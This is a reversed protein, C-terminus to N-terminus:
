RTLMDAGATESGAPDGAGAPRRLRPGPSSPRRPSLPAPLSGRPRHRARRRRGAAGARRHRRPARGARVPRRRRRRCAGRPAAPRSGRDAGRSPAPLRLRMRRIHRDLEGRVIFDHLALQGVVESGADEVAKAPDAALGALLADADLRPAHRSRPAQQGLRHLAVREPALGQLAGVGARDYRYEADYDDEVILREGEEAWEILAARRESSLVCAPRSSTPPRSSRRARRREGGAGRSAARRLRGPGAVVELGASEVILRHTHWGPDELAVREVGRRAALPLDALPGPRLRHLDADARPRRGRRPGPRPLEALAERLAPVGRPDPYDSRM